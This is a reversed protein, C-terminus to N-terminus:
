NNVRVLFLYVSFPDPCEDFGNSVIRSNIAEGHHDPVEM